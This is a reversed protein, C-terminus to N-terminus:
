EWGSEWCMLLVRAEAHEATTKPHVAVPFWFRGWTRSAPALHGVRALHALRGQPGLTGPVGPAGSAGRAGRAGLTGCAGAAGPTGHAPRACRTGPAGACTVACMPLCTPGWWGHRFGIRLRSTHGDHYRTPRCVSPWIGAGGGDMDFAIQCHDRPARAHDLKPVKYQKKCPFTSAHGVCITWSTTGFHVKYQKKALSLARM